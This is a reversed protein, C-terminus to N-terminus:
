CARCSKRCYQMMYKTYHNFDTNCLGSAAWTRCATISDICLPKPRADPLCNGCTQRCGNFVWLVQCYDGLYRCFPYGDTCSVKTPSPAVSYRTVMGGELHDHVHCHLLWIGPNTPIMELTEFVGPFINFVDHNHRKNTRHIFNNAHFHVTHIDVENGFGLLYWAIKEGATMRIFDGNNPGNGYVFGNIVHMKNSEQFSDEDKSVKQPNLTYRNINDDLYWSENEDLVTFLLAFEKNIDKRKGNGDLTGKKCIVLPGILGTNTDKIVNVGSYYAWTLCAGDNQGPAARKPVFWHYTFVSGPTVGENKGAKLGDMYSSGENSKNYFVGHPNISYSRSAMNKLVVVIEDGEEARIIPGLVGLYKMDVSRQKQKTFTGDTFERYVAKKYVKGIRKPGRRTFVKSDENEDLKGGHIMNLNNEAYDWEIEVIGVYFTRKAGNLALQDRKESCQKVEYTTKLGANLHDNVECELAWSGVNDTVMSFSASAGPFLTLTDKRNGEINFTNGHFYISHMDVETGVVFTHWLIKQGKCFELGKLNGYMYGNIQHMKNSEMFDEDEKDVNGCNPSTCYKNMNEQLYWSKNEDMVAMLIFREADYGQPLGNKGLSGKKCVVLPGVLGSYADQVPDVNSSYLWSICAPDTSTPAVAKPVSWEYTLIGLPYVKDDLKSGGSTGDKYLAGENMKDYAVGRPHISYPRSAKNKFVVEILDGVEAKIVPGMIGLHIQDLTRQKRVTFSSDTYEVFIAKKYRGGIRNSSREFFVASSSGSANLKGGDFYNMGSPGYDWEVEEAAIFYERVIGNSEATTSGDRKLGPGGGGCKQANYFTFMGGSYHDTVQCSFMWKGPNQVDMISVATRAPFLSQTDKRHHDSLITNGNFTATHMDVENGFAAMYWAVKHGVCVDLGELNGYFRGNIAHMLNSEVFSDDEKDISDSNIKNLLLNEDLYWSKNEDFVSLLIFLEKNVGAVKDTRDLSGKKCTLLIGVTGTNIDMAPNVHSHYVWAICQEDGDTPGNEPKIKWQYKHVTGPQVADDAKAQGSTGDMYIAGESSKEYFVGHPHMTFNRKAMNKFFVTISDGVEGRLVPGLIGLHKSHPKQAKFSADTFERYVTKKYVRGIRTSSRKTFVEADADEDLVKANRLNTGSPAYDWMVDVAAIYYVRERAARCAQFLFACHIVIQFATFTGFM